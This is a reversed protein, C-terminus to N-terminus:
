QGSVRQHMLRFADPWVHDMMFLAFVLYPILSWFLSSREYKLHMLYMVGLGAELFALVLLSALLRGAPLHGYTLLVEVAVILLLGLWVIVYPKMGPERSANTAM